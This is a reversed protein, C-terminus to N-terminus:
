QPKSLHLSRFVSPAQVIILGATVIGLGIWQIVSPAEGLVSLAILTAMVPMSPTLAAVNTSGIKGVAYPMLLVAIIGVLVGQYIAQIALAEAPAALISPGAILVYPPLFLLGSSVGVVFLADLPKVSWHRLLFTYTGWMLASLLFLSIGFGTSPTLAVMDGFVIAICGVLCVALGALRATGPPEGLFFFSCAMVVFPQLGPVLAAGYAVPAYVLGALFVFSYVAGQLVLLALIRSTGLRALIGRARHLAFPMLFLFSVLFRLATQDFGDLGHAGGHRGVTFMGAYICIALIAAIVGVVRHSVNTM